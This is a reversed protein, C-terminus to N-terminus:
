LLGRRYGEGVAEARDKVGLKQFIGAVERKVSAQSMSLRAAIEKNTTGSAMLRLIDMEGRSLIFPLSARGQALAAFESFLEQTLSSQLVSEGRQVRELAALLDGRTIDKLLYGSAGEEIARALYQDGHMTLVVVKAAPCCQRLQRLAELGGMGPMRMDLLVIDPTRAQAQALADEGTGAEGVVEVQQDVELMRRLGERVVPHDDVLLVRISTM